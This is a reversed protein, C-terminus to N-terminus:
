EGESRRRKRRREPSILYHASSLIIYLKGSFL